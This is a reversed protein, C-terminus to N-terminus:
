SARSRSVQGIGPFFRGVRQAYRRYEGEYTARLWREEHFVQARVGLLMGFYAVSAVVNWLLLTIGAFTLLLFLFIPNRCIRYWGSTVLGPRAGEEIGIRWSAGLNLQAGFMLLPGLLALVSGTLRVWTSPAIALTGVAAALAQLFLIGVYILGGVAMLRQRRDKSRLFLNGSQGTRRIQIAIRLM